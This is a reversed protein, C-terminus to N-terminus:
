VNYDRIKKYAYIASVICIAIVAILAYDNAGTKPLNTTNTNNYKSSNSVNGVINNTSNNTTNNVTNNATNNTASNNVVNSTNNSPQIVIPTNTALVTNAGIIILMIIALVVLVIKKEKM